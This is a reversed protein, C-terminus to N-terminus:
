CGACTGGSCQGGKHKELLLFYGLEEAELPGCESVYGM